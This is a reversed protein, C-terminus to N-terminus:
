LGLIDFITPIIGAPTPTPTPQPAHTPEPTSRPLEATPIVYNYTILEHSVSPTPTVVSLYPTADSLIKSEPIKATLGKDRLITKIERVDLAIQNQQLDAIAQKDVASKALDKATSAEQEAGMATSKLDAWALTMPVIIAIIAIIIKVDNRTILRTDSM